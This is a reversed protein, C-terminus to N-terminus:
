FPLRRRAQRWGVGRVFPMPDNWAFTSKAETAVAWPLWRHLPIGHERAALADRLHYIWRVGPRPPAVPLRTEGTLDAYVLGPLNVGALAGPHHWLNFRANVELLVLADDDTRKFDLKAVGRLGLRDVLERGLALVDPTNTIEVATSFGYERPHTRIKRGTFEGVVAGGEDVYTHYSEIRTEPGPVLEQVLLDLGVARLTPWLEVLQQRTEIRRAKAGSTAEGWRGFGRRTLPKAILPFALDLVPVDQPLPSLVRSRPVPLHLRTALDSFRAKDVVDEVLDADAVVFRFRRALRERERSVFLLERDEEYFLVPPEACTEAFRLLRGVLLEGDTWPDAWEIAGKVLRSYHVPSDPPAVVICPVGALQLPRVLDMSGFVCAFARDGPVDPGVHPKKSRRVAAGLGDKM